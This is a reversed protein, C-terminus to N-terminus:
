APAFVPPLKFGNQLLAQHFLVRLESSDSSLNEARLWCRVRLSATHPGFGTVVVSTASKNMIRKETDALTKLLDIAAVLDNDRALDMDIDIRRIRFRSYNHIQSAWIQANPVTIFVGDATKMQTTFLGIELVTGQVSPTEIYEGVKISRLFVLMIGAAVNSLTGQVALAIALGAAGFIALLASPPYGAITLAAFVTTLLVGYRVITAILPTLTPSAKLGKNNSLRSRTFHALWRAFIWGIILVGLASLINVAFPILSQWHIDKTWQVMNVKDEM